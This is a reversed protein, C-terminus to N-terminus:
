VLCYVLSEVLIWDLADNVAMYRFGSSLMEVLSVSNLVPTSRKSRNSAWQLELYRFFYSPIQKLIESIQSPLKISLKRFLLEITLLGSFFQFFISLELVHNGCQVVVAKSSLILERVLEARSWWPRNLLHLIGEWSPSFHPHYLMTNMHSIPAANGEKEMESVAKVFEKLAKVFEKPFVFANRSTISERGLWVIVMKAQSYILKIHKIISYSRQTATFPICLADVWLVRPKHRYRLQRLAPELNEMVHHNVGNLNISRTTSQSGWVYSLVEFKGATDNPFAARSLTCRVISASDVSPHVVLLYIENFSEALPRSQNNTQAQQTIPIDLCPIPDRFEHLVGTQVDQPLRQLFYDLWLKWKLDILVLNDLHTYGSKNLYEINKELNKLASDRILASLLFTEFVNNSCHKNMTPELESSTSGTCGTLLSSRDM